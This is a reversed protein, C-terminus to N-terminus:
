LETQTRGRRPMALAAPAGLLALVACAGLAPQIGATVGHATGLHGFATFTTSAIAIGFVAGFRQTTNTVGSATGLRDPTVTGLVEAPVTPLAMSIGAGAVFLAIMLRVYDRV